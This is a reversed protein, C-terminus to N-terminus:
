AYPLLSFPKFRTFTPSPSRVLDPKWLSEAMGYLAESCTGAVVTDTALLPAGILDM